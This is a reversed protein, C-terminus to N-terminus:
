LPRVRVCTRLPSKRLHVYSIFRVSKCFMEDPAAPENYGDSLNSYKVPDMSLETKKPKVCPM